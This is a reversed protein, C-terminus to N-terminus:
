EGGGPGPAGAEQAQRERTEKFAPNLHYHISDVAGDVVCAFDILLNLPLAILERDEGGLRGLFLLTDKLKDLQELDDKIDALPEPYDRQMM